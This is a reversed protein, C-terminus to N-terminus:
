KGYSYRQMCASNFPTTTDKIVSTKNVLNGNKDRTQLYPDNICMALLKKDAKPNNCASNIFKNALNIQKNIYYLHALQFDLIPNNSHYSIPAINKIAIKVLRKNNYLSTNLIIEAYRIALLERIPETTYKMFLANKIDKIAEEKNEIISLYFAALGYGKNFALRFYKKSLKLNAKETGDKLHINQVYLAGLAIALNYNGLSIGEKMSSIFDKYDKVTKISKQKVSNVQEANSLSDNSIISNALSFSVLISVFIIQLIRKNKVM